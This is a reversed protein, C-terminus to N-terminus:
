PLSLDDALGTTPTRYTPLWAIIKPPGPPTEPSPLPGLTRGGLFNEFNSSRFRSKRTDSCSIVHYFSQMDNQNFLRCKFPQRGEFFHPAHGGTGGEGTGVLRGCPLGPEIVKSLKITSQQCGRGDVSRNSVPALISHSSTGTVLNTLHGSIVLLQSSRGSDKTWM